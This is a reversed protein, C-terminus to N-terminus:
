GSSCLLPMENDHYARLWKHLKPWSAIVGGGTSVDPFVKLLLFNDDNFYKVADPQRFHSTTVNLDFDPVDVSFLNGCYEISSAEERMRKCARLLPPEDFSDRTIHVRRRGCLAYEYIRNRLEGSLELLKYERIEGSPSQRPMTAAMAVVQM